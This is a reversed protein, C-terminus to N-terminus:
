SVDVLEDLGDSGVTAHLGVNLQNEFEDGRYQVYRATLEFTAVQSNSGSFLYQGDFKYNGLEVAQALMQNVEVAAATRTTPDSM